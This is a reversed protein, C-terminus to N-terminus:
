RIASRARDSVRTELSLDPITICRVKIVDGPGLEVDAAQAGSVALMLGLAALWMGMRKMMHDM